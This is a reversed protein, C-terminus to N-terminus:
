WAEIIPSSGFGLHFVFIESVHQHYSFCFRGLLSKVNLVVLVSGVTGEKGGERVGGFFSNLDAKVEQPM